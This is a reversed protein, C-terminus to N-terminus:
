LRMGRVEDVRLGTLKAILEDPLGEAIGNKAMSIREDKRADEEAKKMLLEGARVQQHCIISAEDM